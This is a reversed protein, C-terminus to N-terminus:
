NTKPDTYKLIKGFKGASVQIENEFKKCWGTSIIIKDGVGYKGADTDWFSIKVQGTNDQIIGEQVKVGTPTETTDELMSIEVVLNVVKTNPELEEIKM